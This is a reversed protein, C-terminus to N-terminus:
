AAAKVTRPTVRLAWGASVAQGTAANYLYYEANRPLDYAMLDMTQTGTVNDLVFNGVQRTLRTPEPVQANNTGDVLLPRAALTIVSNEVPAVAFSCTLVFVADPFDAGDTITSYASTAKASMAGSSFAAGGSEILKTTGWVNINEGSM